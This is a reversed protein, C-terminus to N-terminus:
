IAYFNIGGVGDTEIIYQKMSKRARDYWNKAVVLADDPNHFLFPMEGVEKQVTAIGETYFTNLVPIIYSMAICQEAEKCAALKEGTATECDDVWTVLERAAAELHPLLTADPLKEAAPLNGLTRLETITSLVAM